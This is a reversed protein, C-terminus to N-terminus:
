FERKLQKVVGVIIIPITEMEEKTYMVPGYAPNLPQLIIGNDTKKIKKLTGEDGNIIVVAFENNECDNQKKIIVIDGEIFVPAMSDGKVKLAFYDKGDGVLSTEVDVTGIWNEQALYNYGAKVSGLLPIPAVPNGLVDTKTFQKKYEDENLYIQQESDLQKLLVELDMNMANALLKLTEISPNIPKNTSPNINKELMHIYSRSTGILSAFDQLSMQHEERYQKIIDGLLM